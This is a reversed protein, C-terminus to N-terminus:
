LDLNLKGLMVPHERTKTSYDITNVSHSIKNKSLLSTYLNIRDANWYEDMINVHIFNRDSITEKLTLIMSFFKKEDVHESHLSFSINDVVNFLRQYYRTSASGNTTLLIQGICEQYNTRLWEIFKILNKNSTVEGGSFVIKYKLNLHNTNDFISHWTEKLEALTYHKSVSDHWKPPCYMCNYNCRPGLFWHVSFMKNAPEVKIITRNM